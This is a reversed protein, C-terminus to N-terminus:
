RRVKEEVQKQCAPIDAWMMSECTWLKETHSVSEELSLVVNRM